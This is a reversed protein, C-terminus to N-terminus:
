FKVGLCKEEFSFSCGRCCDSPKSMCWKLGWKRPGLHILAGLKKQTIFRLSTGKSSAPNSFFRSSVTSFTEKNSTSFFFISNSSVLNFNSIAFNLYWFGSKLRNKKEIISM